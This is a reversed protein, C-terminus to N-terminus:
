FWGTIYQYPANRVEEMKMELLDDASYGCCWPWNHTIEIKAQNCQSCRIKVWPSLAPIYPPYTKMTQYKWDSTTVKYYKTLATAGISNVSSM